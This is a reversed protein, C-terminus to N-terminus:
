KSVRRWVRKLDSSRNTWRILGYRVLWSLSWVRTGIARNSDLAHVSILFLQTATVLGRADHRFLNACRYSSRFRRTTTRKGERKGIKRKSSPVGVRPTASM